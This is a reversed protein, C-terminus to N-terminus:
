SSNSTWLRRRKVSTRSSRACSSELHQHLISNQAALDKCRAHLDTVEKDLAEKQQKWSDESSALKAKATEAAALADRVTAQTAGLQNKLNEVQKITEAHVIVERSYREEAAKIRQELERVETERSSRDTESNKEATTIDIITEELTRKDTLWATRETALTQEAEHQKLTAVRLEEQATQVQERFANCDSELRALQAESTAKFEDHTASLTALATENAQSIEQFQAVNSRANALDVESVKLASRLDAVEAELQQERSMGEDTRAAVGNVPASRREYVALKEENGRLQRTFDDLREQHHKNSTEAAVLSERTKSLDQLTKDLRTQLDKLEVDKQLSLHRVNEREHSLQTRLDETQTELMHIQSELRRRDNQGSQELDLHMRQVNSMLDSLQSREMTLAKNEEVLRLQVSEWIKKEARLNACENRLQEVRSNATALDESLRNCEIDVRTYQDLLQRNRSHLSELERNQINYQEQAMRHRDSLYEVKANAKALEASLRHSEKQAAFAEERLKDVDIGMEHRYADFQRQVEALERAMDAEKANGNITVPPPMEGVVHSHGDGTRSLMARLADREKIYAQVTIEHSRKQSELKAELQQIADHAERIAEHQEAEMTARYDREEAELKQGLERTIKLLRMNQQQLAGISRFLVLNNTIVEEINEAPATSQDQELQRDDPLLPDEKRAIDKLLHQVQRGLDDLQQQLLENEKNTKSLKQSAERAHSAEQDREAITEALQAALQAAESQLREYELRQETLIPTREEIQALIRAMTREMEESEVCKRAYEDQLKVYDTYVETFTKGSRQVRSALSVTPSLGTMSEPVISSMGGRRPTALVSPTGPTGPASVSTLPLPLEGTGMREVVEELQVARKEAEEARRREREIAERLVNERREAKEGVQAWERELNEVVDRAQEDREEMIAMLRRLNAAESSYSAEQEALRGTLEQVRAQAQSLQHAQAAHASQLAKFTSEVSAHTQTLADHEAQLEALEAHKTRRYRAFEETKTTLEASTREFEEKALTLQQTLSDVKFKTSTETSRAERLQAELTQHEQRAQRLNTRLTQIEQERQASDEKLRSVVLVLDRKERETDEVRQRLTIVETSSSSQTNSLNAIKHELERNKAALQDREEKVQKLEKQAAEVNADAEKAATEKDQLAQDLEVDKRESEARLEEVERQVADLESVQALLFRYFSVIADPNPNTLPVDPLISSLADYDIDEPLKLALTVGADDAGAQSASEAHDSSEAATTQKSRRTKVM